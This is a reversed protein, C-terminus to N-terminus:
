GNRKSSSWEDDVWTGSKGGSKYVVKVNEISAAKDVAKVMDIVTLAAGMVATLAEMEVGTPGTCEVKSEINIGSSDQDKFPAIDVKVSSIMIPHCLPVINPCMKAAQIGAIRSISLVDGKKLTATTVLSYTESNSFHVQGVAVATRKTDPKNSVSVMHAEGTSSLHTLTQGGSEDDLTSPLEADTARRLPALLKPTPVFTSLGVRGSKQIERSLKLSAEGWENETHVDQSLFIDSQHEERSELSQFARTKSSQGFMLKKLQKLTEFRRQFLNPISMANEEALDLKNCKTLGDKAEMSHPYLLKVSIHLHSHSHFQHTRQHFRRVHTWNRSDGRSQRRIEDRFRHFSSRLAGLADLADGETSPATGLCPQTPSENESRRRRYNYTQVAAKIFASPIYWTTSQEDLTIGTLIAYLQRRWELALYSLRNVTKEIAMIKQVERRWQLEASNEKLTMGTGPAAASKGMVGPSPQRLISAKKVDMKTQPATEGRLMAKMHLLHRRGSAIPRPSASDRANIWHQMALRVDDMDIDIESKVIARLTENEPRVGMAFMWLERQLRRAIDNWENLLHEGRSLCEHVGKAAKHQQRETDVLFKRLRSRTSNMPEEREIHVRFKKRVHWWVFTEEDDLGLETLDDKRVNPGLVVRDWLPDKRMRPKGAHRRQLSYEVVRRLTEKLITVRGIKAVEEEELGIAIQWVEQRWRPIISKWVQFAPGFHNELLQLHQLTYTKPNMGLNRRSRLRWFRHTKMQQFPFIFDQYLTDIDFGQRPENLVRKSEGVLEKTEKTRAVKDVSQPFEHSSGEGSHQPRFWEEMMNGDPAGDLKEIHTKTQENQLELKKQETFREADTPLEDLRRLLGRSERQPDQNIDGLRVSQAKTSYKRRGGSDLPSVHASSVRHTNRLEESSAVYASQWKSSTKGTSSKEQRTSSTLWSSHSPKSSSPASRSRTKSQLAKELAYRSIEIPTKPLARDPRTKTTTHTPSTQRDFSKTTSDQKDQRTMLRPERRASVFNRLDDAAFPAWQIPRDQEDHKEGRENLKKDQAKVNEEDPKGNKEPEFEISSRKEELKREALHIRGQERKQSTRQRNERRALLRRVGEQSDVGRRPKLGERRLLADLRSKRLYGPIKASVDGSATGQVHDKPSFENSTTAVNLESAVVFNSSEVRIHPKDSILKQDGGKTKSTSYLLRVSAKASPAQTQKRAKMSIVSYARQQFSCIVPAQFPPPSMIHGAAEIRKFQWSMFAPISTRYTSSAPLRSTLRMGGPEDILIMPRNEMNELEGMGAHKEKKRKVARGIIDLLKHERPGWGLPTADSLLNTQQRAMELERLREFDDKDIPKGHNGERLIDRLSVETNGHLCVKLNGDSTVRLRNCTGCFDDTMSTIFGVKGVFGPIQYTKSTDNRHGQVRHIGPHKTRIIDLMEQYSLMKGKSWKNGGFPMYEIFRVEIDKERGLEVFPVIERDNMGRMVVCNVKLKLNAGLKKMELVRDISRMVAEFGKRRTMIQFQFPDLTDLSLNIGTLGAEVMADLKRHLSIGNTTLALEKLGKSRLSGIQQMLQVVDPRVTPEGGTLRIKTVGQSVFLSSLYFIEPTTLLHEPPSLQVGEEPMCYLCRLNCRETISIRLYDHQRNFNDTLFDSFPKANRIAEKRSMVRRPEGVSPPSSCSNTTGDAKSAAAATSVYRVRDYVRVRFLETRRTYRSVFRATSATCTSGVMAKQSLM